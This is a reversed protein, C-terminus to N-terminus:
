INKCYTLVMALELEEKLMEFVEKVGQQGGKILGDVVPRGIFVANAGYALAKLIDTGRKFGGDIYIEVKQNMKKAALSISRLVSITSPATDMILGGNNSIWIADAGLKVAEIADERNM